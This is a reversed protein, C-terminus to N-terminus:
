RTGRHCMERNGAGRQRARRLAHPTVQGKYRRRREVRAKVASSRRSGEWRV